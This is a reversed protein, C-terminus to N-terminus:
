STPIAPMAQAMKKVEDFDISARRLSYLLFRVEKAHVQGDVEALKYLWVFIAIKDEYSCEEVLDVGSEFLERESSEECNAMFKQYEDDPIGEEKCIYKIGHEEHDDFEGDTYALLYTLYLLARQRTNM